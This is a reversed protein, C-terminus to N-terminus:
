VIRRGWFPWSVRRGWWPVLLLCLLLCRGLNDLQDATDPPVGVDIPLVPLAPLHQNHKDLSNDAM